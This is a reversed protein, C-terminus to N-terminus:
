GANHFYPVILYIGYLLAGASVTFLAYSVTRNWLEAVAATQSGKKSVSKHLEANTFFRVGLAFALVIVVAFSVSAVFVLLFANWNIEM